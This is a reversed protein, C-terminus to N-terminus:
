LTETNSYDIYPSISLEGNYRLKYGNDHTFIYYSLGERKIIRKVGNFVGKKSEFYEYEYPSEKKLDKIFKAYILSLFHNNLSEREESSTRKKSLDCIKLIDLVPISEYIKSVTKVHENNDDYIKM